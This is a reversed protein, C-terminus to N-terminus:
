RNLIEGDFIRLAMQVREDSEADKGGASDGPSGGRQELETSVRLMVGCIDQIAGEVTERNRRVQNAHFANPVQFSVSLQNGQLAIPTGELLFTGVSIKKQKVAQVVEDWKAKITELSVDALSGVVLDTEGPDQPIDAVPEPKSQTQPAAPEAKSQVQEPAQRQPAAGQPHERDQGQPEYEQPSVESLPPPPAESEPPPPEEDPPPVDSVPPPPEPERAPVSPKPPPAPRVQVAPAPPRSVVPETRKQPRPGPPASPVGGLRSELDALRELLEELSETSALKVLKMVTLELWFRPESVRALTLELESVVQLMQLLDDERLKEALGVYRVKDAEPLDEAAMSKSVSAILLHRLHELLGQTFEGVDGGEEMVSAVVGLAAKGDRALIADFLDFYLDRPIIGLLDRVIDATIETESFALMQELLSLGDRMAGDAKRAVLLLAEEDAKLGEKEAIGVLQALIDSTPIRRFNYRQCRSLITEPVKTPETTAFIFVVHPPPEELTKLLANFAGDSLMHVEDIIYVKRKGKTVAYGVEERLNRVDEVGNNSAGDIEIVDLSKCEAIAVCFDCTGCPEPTPGNECNLAKALLRATTTKGTGRPGSFLYSHAIRESRIANQITKIIHDQAVVDDFTEPRTRRALVKYHEKNMPSGPKVSSCLYFLFPRAGLM